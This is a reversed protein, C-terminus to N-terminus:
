FSQNIPLGGSNYSPNNPGTNDAVGQGSSIADTPFTTRVGEINVNPTPNREGLNLPGFGSTSTDTQIAALGGIATNQPVGGAAALKTFLGGAAGALAGLAGSASTLGSISPISIAGFPNNGGIGTTGLIGKSLSMATVAAMAGLNAGQLGNTVRAGKFLAGAINGTELDHMIEGASEVLGGPGLISQTGGGATSLPTPRHDYHKNAFGKVTSPTIKGYAYLVTEYEVTMSHQMTGASESANHEGHSFEKIIPNLLVYESFKKNFLSYIRIASLYPTTITKGATTGRITYGWDKKTRQVTLEKHIDTYANYDGTGGYDSSRYYYTYYDFWFNRVVDASDDHFVINIPSFRIGTQNVHHRNYANYTNTQITFKPLSVQKVLMGLNEQKEASKMNNLVNANPNIEFFVHYLFTNKPALEYNNGVFLKSAHDWDKVTDHSIIGKAISGLSQGGGLAGGIAAGIGGGLAGGVAQGVVQGAITGGIIGLPNNAM